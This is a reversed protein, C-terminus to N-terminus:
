EFYPKTRNCSFNYYCQRAHIFQYAMMLIPRIEPNSWKRYIKVTKEDICLSDEHLLGYKVLSPLLKEFKQPAINMKEAMAAATYQSAETATQTFIIAKRGDEDAFLSFLEGFDTEGLLKESIEASDKVACFFPFDKVLSLYTTGHDNLIQSTIQPNGAHDEVVKELPVPQENGLYASQMQWIMKFLFDFYDFKDNKYTQFLVFRFFLDLIEEETYDAPSKETGFLANISVGLTKAISPLLYTDPVGGNEWKSVAQGSIGVKDGLQEQTLGALKRYKAINEGITNNNM